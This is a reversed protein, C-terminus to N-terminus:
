LYRRSDHEYGNFVPKLVRASTRNILDTSTEPDFGIIKYTEDTKSDTQTLQSTFSYDKQWSARIVPPKMSSGEQTIAMASSVGIGLASFLFFALSLLVTILQCKQKM